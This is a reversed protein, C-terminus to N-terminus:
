KEHLPRTLQRREIGSNTHDYRVQFILLMSTNSGRRSLRLAAEGRRLRTALRGCTFEFADPWACAAFPPLILSKRSSFSFFHGLWLPAICNRYSGNCSGLSM